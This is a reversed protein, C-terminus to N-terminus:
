ASEKGVSSDPFGLAAIMFSNFVQQSNKEKQSHKHSRLEGVLSGVQAMATFAWFRVVLCGPFEGVTFGKQQQALCFYFTLFYRSYCAFKAKSYLIFCPLPQYLKALLVCQDYFVGEEVVCSFVRCMSMVLHDTSFDSQNYEKCGFTFFSQVTLLFLVPLQSHRM